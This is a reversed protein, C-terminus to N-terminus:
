VEKELKTLHFLIFAEASPEQKDLWAVQALTLGFPTGDLGGLSWNEIANWLDGMAKISGNERYMVRIPCGYPYELTLQQADMYVEIFNPGLVRLTRPWVKIAGKDNAAALSQGSKNRYENLLRQALKGMYNLGDAIIPVMIVLPWLILLAWWLRSYHHTKM